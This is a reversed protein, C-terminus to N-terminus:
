LQKWHEKQWNTINTEIGLLKNQVERIAEDTPMTIVDISFMADRSIETFAQIIDDRINTAYDKLFLVRGYKNGMRFYDSHKEMSDPCIYDKFDHGKKEKHKKYISDEMLRYYIPASEFKLKKPGIVESILWAIFLQEANM